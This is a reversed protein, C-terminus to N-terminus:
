ARKYRRAKYEEVWQRTSYWQDTRRVARLRGRKAAVALANGSLEPDAALAGDGLGAGAVGAPQQDLRGPVVQARGPGPRRESVALLALGRVHELDGPAGLVAEVALVGAQARAALRAVDGGDGDGALEGAEGPGGGHGCLGDVLRRSPRAGPWVSGPV